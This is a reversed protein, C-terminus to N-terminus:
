KKFEIVLTAKRVDTFNIEANELIASNDTVSLIRGEVIEDSNKVVKVLKGINKRWHRELTLPRDIGPSTVELTFPSNGLASLEDLTTSISKTIQTVQDLNLHSDSDVIITILKNKGANLVKVEELYNGTSEIIPSIASSIENNLSM